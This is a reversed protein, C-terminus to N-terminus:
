SEIADFLGLEKWVCDARLWAREIRCKVSDRMVVERARLSDVAAVRM